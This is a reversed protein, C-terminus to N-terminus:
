YGIEFVVTGDQKKARLIVENSNTNGKITLKAKPDSTGIGVKGDQTITLATYGCLEWWWKHWPMTSGTPTRGVQTRIKFKQNDEDDIMLVVGRGDVGVTNSVPTTYAAYMKDRTWGSILKIAASTPGREAAAAINLVASYNVGNFELVSHHHFGWESEKGILLYDVKDSARV